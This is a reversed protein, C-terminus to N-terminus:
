GLEGVRCADGVEVCLPQERELGVCVFIAGAGLGLVCLISVGRVGVGILHLDGWGGGVYFLCSGLRWM